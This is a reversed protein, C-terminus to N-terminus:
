TVFGFAIKRFSVTLFGSDNKKRTFREEQPAAIIKGDVLLAVASDHCFASLGLIYGPLPM